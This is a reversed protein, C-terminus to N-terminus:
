RLFACQDSLKPSIRQFVTPCLCAKKLPRQVENLSPVDVYFGISASPGTRDLKPLSKRFVLFFPFCESNYM